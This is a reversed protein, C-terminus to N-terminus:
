GGACVGRLYGIDHTLATLGPANRRANFVGVRVSWPRAELRYQGVDTLDAVHSGDLAGITFRAFCSSLVLGTPAFDETVVWRIYVHSSVM